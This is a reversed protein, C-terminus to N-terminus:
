RAAGASRCAPAAARARLATAPPRVILKHLSPGSPTQARSDEYNRGVSVCHGVSFPKPGEVFSRLVGEDYDAAVTLRVGVEVLHMGTLFSGAGPANVKGVAGNEVDVVLRLADLRQGAGEM